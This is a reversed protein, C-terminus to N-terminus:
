KLYIRYGFGIQAQQLNGFADRAHLLGTFSNAMQVSLFLESFTNLDYNLKGGIQWSFLIKRLFETEIKKRQKNEIFSASSHVPIAAILGADMQLSWRNFRYIDYSINLPVHLYAFSNVDGLETRERAQIMTSDTVYVPVRVDDIIRYYVAVTDKQWTNYVSDSFSLYKQTFSSFELGTTFKWKRHKKGFHVGTNFGPLMQTENYVHEPLQDFSNLQVGSFIQTFLDSRQPLIIETTADFKQPQIEPKAMEEQFNIEKQLLRNLEPPPNKMKITRTETSAPPSTFSPEEVIVRIEKIKYFVLTGHMAKLGVNPNQDHILEIIERISMEPNVNLTSSHDFLSSNFVFNIKKEEALRKLLTEIRINAAYIDAKQDLLATQHQGFASTLWLLFLILCPLYKKYM